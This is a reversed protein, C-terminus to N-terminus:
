EALEVIAEVEVAAGRPLAAVGVAARAHRGKDGFIAAMLDSAGDAVAPQQGFDPTSAVFVGLRAITTNALSKSAECPLAAGDIARRPNSSEIFSGPSAPWNSAAIITGPGVPQPVDLLAEVKRIQATLHGGGALAGPEQALIEFAILFLGIPRYHAQM